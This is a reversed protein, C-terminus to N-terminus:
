RTYRPWPIFSAALAVVALALWGAANATSDFWGFAGSASVLGCAMAVILLILTM